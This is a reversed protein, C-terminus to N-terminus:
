QKDKIFKNQNTFFNSVSSGPSRKHAIEKPNYIREIEGKKEFDKMIM